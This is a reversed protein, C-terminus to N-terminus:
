TTVPVPRVDRLPFADDSVPRRPPAPRPPGDGRRREARPRGAGVLVRRLRGDEPVVGPAAAPVPHARHPVRLRPAARADGVGVPQHDAAPRRRGARLEVVARHGRGQAAVRLGAVGRRPRQDGAARRRVRGDGPPGAARAPTRRQAPRPAVGDHVPLSPRGRGSRGDLTEHPHGGCSVRRQMSVRPHPELPVTAAIVGSAARSRTICQRSRAWSLPKRALAKWRARSTTRLVSGASISSRAALPVSLFSSPM